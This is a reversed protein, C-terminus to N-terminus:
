VYPTTPLTLHTYSVPTHDLLVLDVNNRFFFECAKQKNKEVIVHCDRVTAVLSQYYAEAGSDILLITQIKGM